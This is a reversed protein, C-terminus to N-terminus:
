TVGSDTIAHTRFVCYVFGAGRSAMGLLRQLVSRPKTKRGFDVDVDDRMAVFSERSGRLSARADM